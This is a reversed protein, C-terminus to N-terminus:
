RGGGRGAGPTTATTSTGADGDGSRVSLRVRTIGVRELEALVGSVAAFPLGRDARIEVVRQASGSAPLPEDLVAAALTAGDEFLRSGMTIRWLAGAVEGASGANLPLTQQIAGPEINVVIAEGTAIPLKSADAAMPLNMPSRREAALHGVLLFFVILCLVVDIMPVVNVGEGKGGGGESKGGGVGVRAGSAALMARQMPSLIPAMLNL